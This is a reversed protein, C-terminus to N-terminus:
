CHKQVSIYQKMEVNQYFVAMFCFASHNLSLQLRALASKMFQLHTYLLEGFTNFLDRKKSLRDKSLPKAFIRNYLFFYGVWVLYSKVEYIKSINSFNFMFGFISFIDTNLVKNVM